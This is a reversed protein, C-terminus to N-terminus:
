PQRDGGDRIPFELDGLPIEIAIAKTSVEGAKRILGMALQTALEPPLSLWTLPTSFNLVVVGNDRDASVGFWISDETSSM